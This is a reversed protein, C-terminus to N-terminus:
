KKEALAKIGPLEEGELFELSAIGGTSLHSMYQGKNLSNVTSVSDAGGVLTIGPSKAMGCVIQTTGDSYESQEFVGMSGNWLTIASSEIINIFIKITEPGIDYGTYGDPIDSSVVRSDPDELNRAVVFDEPLTIEKGLEEAKDLISQAAKLYDLHYRSTGIAKGKAKLFTYAIEGAVLFNDAKELLESLIALKDEIKNGGVVVTLPHKPEKAIQELFKLEKQVLFGCAADKFYKAVGVTTAHVRHAAGFADNIYKDVMSALEKSFQPDNNEEEPYFRVNELLLCEGDELCDIASKAVPGIIAPSFGVHQGLVHGLEEAVPRLSEQENEHGEPRGLHSVLIVKAQKELLYKITPLAAIIRTNDGVKLNEDLPVNFDVRLLVRKGRVELDEITMKEM